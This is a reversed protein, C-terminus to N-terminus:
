TQRERRAIRAALREIDDRLEGVQETFKDFEYRSPVARSEEQLYETINQRATESADRGWRGINRAIDGIGHAAADGVIGSLEEEFDPKAFAMLRHFQQATEARGVLEVRGNRIEAEGSGAAMAGFALVSGTIVLDPEDIAPVLELEEPGVQFYVSLSTDRVRLAVVQGDLERCIERAPTKARIQRNLMGIFPRAVRELPTSTRTM